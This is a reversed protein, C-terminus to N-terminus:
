VTNCSVDVVGDDNVLRAVAANVDRGIGGRGDDDAAATPTADDVGRLPVILVLEMM